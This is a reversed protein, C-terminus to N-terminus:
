TREQEPTAGAFVGKSGAGLARRSSPPSRHIPSAPGTRFPDELFMTGHALPHPKEINRVHSLELQGSRVGEGRELPEGWVIDAPQRVSAAVIGRKQGLPTREDVVKEHVPATGIRKQDDDVGGVRALVKLKSARV